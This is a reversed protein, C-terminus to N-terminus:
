YVALQRNHRIPRAFLYLRNCSNLDSCIRCYKGIDTVAGIFIPLGYADDIVAYVFPRDLTVSYIDVAVATEKIEVATAAGAKTGKEDVAIYAKHLVRSIFINGNGSSGLASFDAKTPDFPLTIGLAKLAGSMEIDYDYSFKPIITEVPVDKANKITDIYSKGTMSAAYDDLSVGENPLLAVFSYGNKYPKIFGTAKGDDLYSHEESYMMPVTKKTGDLATFTGDRVEDKKYINEWEADFLVTNILYMVASPDFDDIIKEIMGDTNKKVRNNIDRLTKRDFASKYAEAGYYDANKQLFAKEATFGNDKFWISNTINLKATKESPLAKIYSYLYENLTEMPIDGGLLAEMQALTEGNAGNATMSLALMVSLPSILSNKNDDRTQQFLKIAFDASSNKFADDAAKGSVPKAAIGEMLNAAQVKTGCGSISMVGTVLVSMCLIVATWQKTKM